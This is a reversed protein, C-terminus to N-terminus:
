PIFPFVPKIVRRIQLLFIIYRVESSVSPNEPPAQLQAQLEAYEAPSIPSGDIPSRTEIIIETRLIEEPPDEPPPLAIAASSLPLIGSVSTLFLFGVALPRCGM